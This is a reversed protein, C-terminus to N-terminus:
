NEERFREYIDKVLHVLMKITTDIDVEGGIMTKFGNNEATVCFFTNANGDDSIRHKNDFITYEIM